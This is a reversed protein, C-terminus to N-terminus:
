LALKFWSFFELVYGHLYGKTAGQCLAGVQSRACLGYGGGADAGFVGQVGYEGSTQRAVAHWPYNACPYEVFDISFFDDVDVDVNLLLDILSFFFFEGRAGDDCFYVWEAFYVCDAFYYEVVVGVGACGYEM